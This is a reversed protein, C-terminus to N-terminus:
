GNGSASAGDFPLYSSGKDATYTVRGNVRIDLSVGISDLCCDLRFDEKLIFALADELIDQFRELTLGKGQVLLFLMLYDEYSLGEETIASEQGFMDAQTLAGAPTEWNGQTKLFPVKGGRLLQRIDRCSEKYIWIQEAAETLVEAAGEMKLREAEEAALARAQERLSPCAYFSKRNNEQRLAFLRRIVGALNERDSSGGELLYEMQCSLFGEGPSRANGLKEELYALFLGFEEDDEMKPMSAYFAGAEKSRQSLLRTGRDGRDPLPVMGLLGAAPDQTQLAKRVGLLISKEDAPSLIIWGEWAGAEEWRLALARDRRYPGIRGLREEADGQKGKELMARVAQQYLGEGEDDTVLRYSQVGGALIDMDQGNLSLVPRVFSLFDQYIGWMDLGSSGMRGDLLFLDFHSLAEREYGALCSFLGIDVAHLIQARAGSLRVSVIGAYLLMVFGILVGSLFLTISGKRLKFAM